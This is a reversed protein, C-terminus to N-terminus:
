KTLQKGPNILRLFRLSEVRGLAQDLAAVGLCYLEIPTKRQAPSMSELHGNQCFQCSKYQPLPHLKSLLERWNEPFGMPDLPVSPHKQLLSTFTELWQSEPEVSWLCYLCAALQAFLRDNATITSKLNGKKSPCTVFRRDWLRSHHACTNRLNTFAHTWSILEPPSARFFDSVPKQDARDSLMSFAKSWTGMSLAEALMWCPPLNPSGYTNFYHRIFLSEKNRRAEEEAKLLFEQHDFILNGTKDDWKDSFRGPDTTYPKDFTAKTGSDPCFSPAAQNAEPFRLRTGRVTTLEIKQIEPHQLLFHDIEAHLTQTAAADLPDSGPSPSSM